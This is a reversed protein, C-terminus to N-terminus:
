SKWRNNSDLYLTHGTSIVAVPVSSHKSTTRNTKTCIVFHIKKQDIKPKNKESYFSYDTSSTTDSLYNM